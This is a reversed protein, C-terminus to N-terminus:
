VCVCVRVCAYVVVGAYEQGAQRERKKKKKRKRRTAGLVDWCRRSRRRRRIRSRSRKNLQLRGMRVLCQEPGRDNSCLLAMGLAVACRLVACRLVAGMPIAWLRGTEHNAQKIAAAPEVPALGGDAGEAVAEGGGEREEIEGDM